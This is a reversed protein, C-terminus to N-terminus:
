KKISKFKHGIIVGPTLKLEKLENYKEEINDYLENLKHADSGFTVKSGGLETYIKIIQSNPFISVGRRVGSTNIEMTIDKEIITNLIKNLLEPDAYFRNFYRKIYDLHAVVDIPSENIMIFLQVLYLYMNDETNALNSLLKDYLHHISGLVVDIDNISSLLTDTEKKYHHPESIEVGKIIKIQTTEQLKDISYNRRKITDIVKSVSDHGFEIHDTLALYKIKKEELTKIIDKITMDSDFSYESHIHMDARYEVM